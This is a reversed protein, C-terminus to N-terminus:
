SFLQNVLVYQVLDANSSMGMKQLINARHAAVTKVSLNLETAITRPPKGRAILKLIQLERGSLLEHPAKDGSGLLRLAVEEMLSPAIYKEGRAIKRIARILQERASDKGIYGAAGARIMRIAYIPECNVSLILVPTRVYLARIQVLVDIGPRDPLNLDLIVVDVQHLRLMELAEAATGAEAVISIDRTESVIQRVGDRVVEHDDVILLHIM